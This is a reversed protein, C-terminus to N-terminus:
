HVTGTTVVSMPGTGAAVEFDGAIIALDGSTANVKHATVDNDENNAVYVFKGSPDAAVSFPNGGTDFPSDTLKALAGTAADLAYAEVYNGTLSPAYVYNGSPNVTV